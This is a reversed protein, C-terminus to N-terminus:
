DQDRRVDDAVLVIRARDGILQPPPHACQHRQLLANAGPLANNM